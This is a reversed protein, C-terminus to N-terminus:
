ADYHVALWLTPEDPATWEVRHRTRPPIAVFDGPQLAQPEGGEFRLIAGGRLLVVWEARDQALWAGPPTTQGTSVIREIRLTEATLLDGVAEADSQPELSVYINNFAAM